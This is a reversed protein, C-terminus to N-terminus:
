SWICRAAGRPLPWLLTARGASCGRQRGQMQTRRSQLSRHLGGGHRHAAGADTRTVAGTPDPRPDAMRAPAPSTAHAPWNTNLGVCSWGHLLCLARARALSAFSYCGCISQGNTHPKINGQCCDTNSYVKIGGGAVGHQGFVPQGGARLILTAAALTFCAVPALAKLTAMTHRPPFVYLVPTYYCM